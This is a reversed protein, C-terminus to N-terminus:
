ARAIADKESDVKNRTTELGGVLTNNGGLLDHITNVRSILDEFDSSALIVDVYDLDDSKYSLVARQAFNKQELVLEAQAEQLELKKLRLEERLVELKEKTM